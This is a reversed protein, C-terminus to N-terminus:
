ALAPELGPLYAELPGLLRHPREGRPDLRRPRRIARRQDARHQRYDSVAADAVARASPLRPRRLPPRPMPSAQVLCSGLGLQGLIALPPELALAMRRLSRRMRSTVECSSVM